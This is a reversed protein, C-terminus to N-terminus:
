YEFELANIKDVIVGDLYLWEVEVVNKIYMIVYVCCFM